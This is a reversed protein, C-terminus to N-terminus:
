KSGNKYLYIKKGSVGRMLMPVETPHYGQKEVWFSIRSTSPLIRPYTFTFNGDADTQVLLQGQYSLRAEGIPTKSERELVVGSFSAKERKEAEPKNMEEKSPTTPQVIKKESASDQPTPVDKEEKEPNPDIKKISRSMEMWYTGVGLLLALIALVFIFNLAKHLLPYKLQNNKRDQDTTITSIAIKFVPALVLFVLAALILPNQIKDLHEM